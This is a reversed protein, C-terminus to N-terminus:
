LDTKLHTYLVEVYDGVRPTILTIRQTTDLNYQTSNLKIGSDFVGIIQIAPFSLVVLDGVVTEFEESLMSINSQINNDDIILSEDISTLEVNVDLDEIQQKVEDILQANSDDREHLITVIEDIQTKDYVNGDPNDGDVTAINNIELAHKWALVEINSGDAKARSNLDTTFNNITEVDVTSEFAEALGEVESLPIPNDKHRFSSWAATFQAETPILGTKFWQLITNLSAM